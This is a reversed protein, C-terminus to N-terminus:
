VAIPSEGTPLGLVFPNEASPQFANIRMKIYEAVHQAVLDATDYIFLRM